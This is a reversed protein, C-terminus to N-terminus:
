CEYLVLLFNYQADKDMRNNKQGKRNQKCEKCHADPHRNFQGSKHKGGDSNERYSGDKEKL